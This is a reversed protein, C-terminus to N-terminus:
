TDELDVYREVRVPNAVRLDSDVRRWRSDGDVSKFFTQQERVCAVVDIMNRMPSLLIRARSSVVAIRLWTLKESVADM